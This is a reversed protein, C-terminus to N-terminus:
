YFFFYFGIGLISIVYYLYSIDRVSLYIFFNYLAMVVIIGAFIAQLWYRMKDQQEFDELTNIKLDIVKPTYISLNGKLRLFFTQTKHKELIVKFATVSRPYSRENLPFLSGSAGGWYTPSYIQAEGWKASTYLIYTQDYAETNQLDFRLWYNQTKNLIQGDYKKFSASDRSTSILFDINKQAYSLGYSISLCFTIILNRILSTSIIKRM